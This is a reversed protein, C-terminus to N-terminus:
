QWEKSIRKTEPKVGESILFCIVSHQEEKACTRLSADDM